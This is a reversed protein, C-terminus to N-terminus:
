VVSDFLDELEEDEEEKTQMHGNLLDLPDRGYKEEYHQLARQAVAGNHKWRRKHKHIDPLSMEKEKRAAIEADLEEKNKFQFREQLDNIMGKRDVGKKGPPLM